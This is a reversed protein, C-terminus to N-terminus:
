IKSRDKVYVCTCVGFQCKGDWLSIGQKTNNGSKVNINKVPM